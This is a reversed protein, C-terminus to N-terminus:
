IFLFELLYVGTKSIFVFPYEDKKKLKKGTLFNIELCFFSRKTTSSYASIISEDVRIKSKYIQCYNFIYLFILSLSFYFASSM